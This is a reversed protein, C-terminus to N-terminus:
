NTNVGIIGGAAGSFYISCIKTLLPISINFTNNFLSISIVFVSIVSAALIGCILGNEKHYRSTIFSCIFSSVALIVSTLPLLIEFTFDTKTIIFATLSFLMINCLLCLGIILFLRILIKLTDSKNIIKQLM